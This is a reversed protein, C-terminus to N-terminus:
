LQRIRKRIKPFNCCNLMMSGWSYLESIFCRFLLSALLGGTVTITRNRYRTTFPTCRVDTQRLDLTWLVFNRCKLFYLEASFHFFQFVNKGDALASSVQICHVLLPFKGYEQGTSTSVTLYKCMTLCSALCNKKRTFTDPLRVNKVLFSFGSSDNSSKTSFSRTKLSIYM